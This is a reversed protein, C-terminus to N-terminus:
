PQGQIQSTGGSKEETSKYWIGNIASDPNSVHTLIPSEKIATEMIRTEPNASYSLIHSEKIDTEMIPSELNEFYSMIPSEEIATEMIPSESNTSYSMIPSEKITTEMIPSEPKALYSMIPSEKIATEMIPSEPNALFANYSIGSKCKQRKIGFETIASDTVGKLETPWLDSLSLQRRGNDAVSSCVTNSV